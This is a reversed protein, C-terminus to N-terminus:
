VKAKEMLEAKLEEFNFGIKDPLQYPIMKLEM